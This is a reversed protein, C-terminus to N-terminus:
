ARLIEILADLHKVDDINATVLRAGHAHATAAIMLDLSRATAKRGARHTAAALEGYSAAVAADVPLPAFSRLIASLRALRHARRDDDPAVLVGFQLEAISVISIAIDGEVPGPAEAILISTDLVSLM